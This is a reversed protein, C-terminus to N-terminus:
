DLVVEQGVYIRTMEGSSVSPEFYIGVYWQDDKVPYRKSKMTAGSRVRRCAALFSTNLVGTSQDVGPISCRECPESGTLSLNGLTFSQINDEAWATELGSLVINPRFRDHKVAVGVRKSLDALSETSVILTPTRYFFSNPKRAGNGTTRDVDPNLKVFRVDTGLYKTFWESAEDGQDIVRVQDGFFDVTYEKGTNRANHSLIEGEPASLTISTADFSLPIICSLKPYKSQSLAKYEGSDADRAIIAYERDHLMGRPGIEISYREVGRCGKVPYVIIHSIVPTRAKNKSSIRMRRYLLFGATALVVASAGLIAYDRDTM